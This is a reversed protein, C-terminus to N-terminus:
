LKSKRVFEENEMDFYVILMGLSLIFNLEEQTPKSGLVIELRAIPNLKFRYELLQGIAARIAYKTEVNETPKIESFIIQNEYQYQVDVYNKNEIYSLGNQNLYKVYKAQLKAHLPEVNRKGEVWYQYKRDAPSNSGKIKKLSKMRRSKTFARQESSVFDKDFDDSRLWQIIPHDLPTLDKMIEIVQEPSIPQYSGHMTILKSKGSIKQPNLLIPKEFHHYFHSPCKWAIWTYEKKWFDLFRNQDNDFKQKVLDLQWIDQWAAFINLEESIVDREEQSNDYVNAAISIAYQQKKYSAITVIGLEGTQSYDLLRDSFETHFLKYGRWTRGPNNNWEEHGFGNEASYGSNSPFGSPTIYGNTNWM